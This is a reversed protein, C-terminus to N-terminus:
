LGNDTVRMAVVYIIYLIGLGLLMPTVGWLFNVLMTSDVKPYIFVFRALFVSYIILVLASGSRMASRYILAFAMGCVFMVLAGAINFNVYAEGIAGPTPAGSTSPVYMEKITLGISSPEMGFYVGISNRFWDLYTIGLSSTNIDFTHFIIVLQQLDSVNGGGIIIDLINTTFVETESGIFISNSLIRLFYVVFAFSMLSVFYIFIKKRQREDRLAIFFMQALIFTVALTIRGQSLNMVFGILSCLIFIKSIPKGKVHLGLLWLYIGAYYLHYPLTSIEADEALHRFAQFYILLNLMGGATVQAIWYWYGLGIVLFPIVILLYHKGYFKWFRTQSTTDFFLVKKKFLIYGLLFFLYATIAYVLSLRMLDIIYATDMDMFALFKGFYGSSNAYYYGGIAYGTYMLSFISLPSFYDNDNLFFNAFTIIIVLILSLSPLYSLTNASSIEVYLTFAVLCVLGISYLIAKNANLTRNDSILTTM